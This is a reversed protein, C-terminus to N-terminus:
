YGQGFDEMAEDLIHLNKDIIAFGARLEEETIILPPNTYFCHGRTFTFLGDALMAKRFQGMAAPLPDVVDAIFDGKRNKQIDICGFLGLARAQKISPHKASLSEMCEVMVRELRQANGVLDKEMLQLLAEHASALATPHANYTSGYASNPNQRFHDSVWDRLALGGLPLYAGNVGKAFTVM